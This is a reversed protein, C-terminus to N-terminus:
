MEWDEPVTKLRCAGGEENFFPCHECDDRNKCNLRLVNFANRLDEDTIIREVKYIDESEYADLIDRYSDCVYHTTLGDIFTIKYKM